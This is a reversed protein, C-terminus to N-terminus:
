FNYIPHPNRTSRIGKRLAIPWPHDSDLSSSSSSPDMIRSDPPSPNSDLPDELLSPTRPTRRQYTLLPPQVIDNDNQTPPQTEPIVLPDCSPLPLVQQVSSSDEM